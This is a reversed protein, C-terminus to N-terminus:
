HGKAFDPKVWVEVQSRLQNVWSDALREMKDAALARQIGSAAEGLPIRGAAKKSVMKVVHFGYSSPWPGGLQGPELAFFNKEVEPPLQGQDVWAPQGQVDMTIGVTAAAQILPVGKAVLDHIKVALDKTPALAQHILIRAPRQYEALHENYYQSVEAPTVQAKPSLVLDMTKRVLLEQALHDLWQSFELGQATIAEQFADESTGRRLSSLEREMEEHDLQIGLKHAQDLILRQRIVTELVSQRIDTRMKAPDHGLGLYASAEQFHDLLIDEGAVRAIVPSGPVSNSCAAVSLLLVAVLLPVLKPLPTKGTFITM